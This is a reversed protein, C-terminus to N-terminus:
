NSIGHHATYSGADLPLFTYGRETLTKLIDDLANATSAKIDHMLVVCKSCNYVGNTVNRYIKSSNANSADGSSVNWDFYVYGDEKMRKAIETVIGKKYSKSITNSSGGPFRFLNTYEGTQKKIVENMKNFDNLYADLSSYVNYNHTYTHVAVTHGEKAEEKLLYEYSPFQHTVFFTAKVGYKKLTNLIGKTYYGPGDDFTLYIVKGSIKDGPAYVNVIRTLKEESGVEYTLTYTGKTTTDVTGSIKVKEDIAKGCGDTYKTGSENYTGNLPVFVKSNGNLKFVNKPIKTYNIVIEKTSINGSMDSVKLIEKNDVETIEIKDTLDGDYNDLASYKLKINDKKTCYDRTVSDNNVTIEPATKDVINIKRTLNYEKGNYIVKYSLQYEGVKTTDVSGDTIIEYNGSEVNKNYNKVIIGTEIYDNNVEQELVELGNLKVSIHNLIFFYYISFLIVLFLVVLGVIKWNKM